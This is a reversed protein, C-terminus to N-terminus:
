FGYDQLLSEVDSQSVKEVGHSVIDATNDQISDAKMLVQETEFKMPMGFNTILRVLEVEVKHVLDIVKRITQGTIDQFQQATIIDTMDGDLSDKFETLYEIDEESGSVRQIHRSFEDSEEFYREVIAMTKNAADETKSIVFELKDVANPVDDNTLKDLGTDVATKFDELSDHLKRTIKGVEKFLTGGTEQVLDSTISEITNYDHSSLADMLLIMKELVVQRPDNENLKDGFFDKANHLEKVTITGGLTNVEKLVEVNEGNDVENVNLITDELLTIDDLPLLKNTDLLVILKDDFKAVGEIRDINTNFFSEPPDIKSEDVKIVGTIGDVTVGFVVKGTTLVVVTNGEINEGESNLLTKLNVIPIVSGRLNTVGKVYNPLQPLETVSPMTIIERVKLIPLM